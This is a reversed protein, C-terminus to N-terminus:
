RRMYLRWTLNLAIYWYRVNEGITYLTLYISWGLFKSIWPEGFNKYSSLSSLPQAQTISSHVLHGSLTSHLSKLYLSSASFPGESEGLVQLLRMVDMVHRMFCPRISASTCISMDNTSTVMLCWLYWELVMLGWM